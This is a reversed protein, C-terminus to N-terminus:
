PGRHRKGGGIHYELLYVQFERSCNRAARAQGRMRVGIGRSNAEGKIHVRLINGNYLLFQAWNVITEHGKVMSIIFFLM